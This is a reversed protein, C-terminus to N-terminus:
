NQNVIKVTKSSNNGDVIKVLYTGKPQGALDITASEENTRLTSVMQGLVNYVTITNEGDLGMVTSKGSVTPNPFMRIESGNTGNVLLGTCLSVTQTISAVATKCGSATNTGVVTYTTTVTPSVLASATNVGGAATSWTYTNAGGSATLTVQEGKCIVSKSTVASLMTETFSYVPEIGFYGLDANLANLAGAALPSTYYLGSPLYNAVQSGMPFYGTTSAPQALGAYYLNGAILSQPTTLTLNQFNGFMGSAITITNTAALITGTNDMLVGYVQQNVAAADNSIAIRIGSVTANPAAPFEWSIIGSGTNFGVGATYSGSAPNKGAVDCTVSQTWTSLNNNNNQDSGVTVSVNNAGQTQPNYSIFTVTTVAGPALTAITQVDTLANAGTVNLNVNINNIAVNSANKVDATINHSQNLLKAVKGPANVGVIQVDNTVTNAGSFIFCPRFATTTLTTPAPMVTADATAGGPSLSNNAAYIAGGADFPGAATWDYAVYLGAGTYTFPSSLTMNITTPTNGVPVTFTGTFATAMPAIATTWNTGKQYTTNATNELYLTFNGTVPVAVTGETLSFSFSSIQNVTLGTLESPMVLFCGRMAAHGSTGNPARVQTTAGNDPPAALSINVQSYGYGVSLVAAFLSLTIKKM